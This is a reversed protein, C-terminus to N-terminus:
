TTAVLEPTFSFSFILNGLSLTPIQQKGSVRHWSTVFYVVIFLRSDEWAPVDRWTNASLSRQVQITNHPPPPPTSGDSGCFCLSVAPADVDDDVEIEAFVACREAVGGGGGGVERLGAPRWVCMFLYDESGFVLVIFFKRKKKKKLTTMKKLQTM